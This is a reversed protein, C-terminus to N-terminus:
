FHKVNKKASCFHKQGQWNKQIPGFIKACSVYNKATGFISAKDNSMTPFLNCFVAKENTLLLSARSDGLQNNVAGYHDCGYSHDHWPILGPIRFLQGLWDKAYNVRPRKRQIKTLCKIFQM